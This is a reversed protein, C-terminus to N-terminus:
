PVPNTKRDIGKGNFISRILEILWNSTNPTTNNQQAFWQEVDDRGPCQSPGLNRHGVVRAKPYRQKINKLLRVLEREQDPTPNWVGVNPDKEIGGAWCVHITNQNHGRVGAGVQEEPRGEWLKANRDIYWHYGFGRSGAQKHWRDIESVSPNMNPPTATYHVVIFDIRRM